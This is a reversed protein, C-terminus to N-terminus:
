AVNASSSFLHAPVSAIRYHLFFFLILEYAPSRFSSALALVSASFCRQLSSCDLLHLMFIWALNVQNAAPLQAARVLETATVPQPVVQFLKPHGASGILQTGWSDM